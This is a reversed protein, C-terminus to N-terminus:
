IAKIFREINKVINDENDVIIRHADGFSVVESKPHFNALKRSNQPDTFWDKEAILILQPIDLENERGRIDFRHILEVLIRMQVFLSTENFRGLSYELNKVEDPSKRKLYAKLIFIVVKYYFWLLPYPLLNLLNFWWQTKFKSEPSAVLFARPKSGKKDIYYQYGIAAGVCSGWLYFEKGELKYHSIIKALEDVMNNVKYQGRRKPASSKGFGIPEYMIVNSIKQFSQLLPIRADINDLWGPIVLITKDGNEQNLAPLYRHRLQVYPKSSVLLYNDAM